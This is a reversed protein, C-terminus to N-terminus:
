KSCHHIRWMHLLVSRSRKASAMENVQLVFIPEFYDYVPAVAAWRTGYKAGGARCRLYEAVCMFRFCGYM